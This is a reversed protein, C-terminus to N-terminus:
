SNDKVESHEWTWQLSWSRHLQLQVYYRVTSTLHSCLLPQFALSLETRLFPIPPSLHNIIKCNQCLLSKCTWQGAGHETPHSASITPCHPYLLCSLSQKNNIKLQGSIKHSSLNSALKSDQSGKKLQSPTHGFAQEHRESDKVAKGRYYTTTPFFSSSWSRDRGLKARVM